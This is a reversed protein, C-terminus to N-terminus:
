VDPLYVFRAISSHSCIRSIAGLDNHRHNLIAGGHGRKVLGLRIQHLPVVQLGWRWLHAKLKGCFDLRAGSELSGVLGLRCTWTEFPWPRRKKFRPNPM